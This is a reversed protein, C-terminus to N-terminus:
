KNISGERKLKHCTFMAQAGRGFYYLFVARVIIASLGTTSGAYICLALYYVCMLLACSRSFRHIGYALALVIVVDM